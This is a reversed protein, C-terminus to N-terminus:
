IRSGTAPDFLHVNAVRPKLRLTEGPRFAHRERFLAMLDAEGSRLFVVTESGTPEIVKITAEMGDDAVDFHEPRVGYTVARGEQLGAGPPVPLRMDGVAVARGGDVVVGKLLNM